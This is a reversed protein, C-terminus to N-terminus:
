RQVFNHVRPVQDHQQNPRCVRRQPGAVRGAYVRYTHRGMLLANSAFLEDRAIAVAEDDHYEFHWQELKGILGDLSRFTSNVVRRM